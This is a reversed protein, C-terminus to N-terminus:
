LSSEIHDAFAGFARDSDQQFTPVFYPQAALTVSRKFVVRDGITFRLFPHGKPRITGGFEQIQAYVLDTGVEYETNSVQSIQISNALAGSKHPARARMGDQYVQAGDRLARAVSAAGVADTARNLMQLSDRISVTARVRAM